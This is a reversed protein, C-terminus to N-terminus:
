WRWWSPRSGRGPRLRHLQRCLGGAQLRRPRHRAQPRHRDQRRGAVEELAAQTGTGGEAVVGELIRSLTRATRASLVRRGPKHLGRAVHGRADITGRLLTPSRLVGNNAVTAYVSAMQLVTM